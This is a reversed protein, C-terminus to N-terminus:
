TAQQIAKQKAGMAKEIRTIRLILPPHIMYTKIRGYLTMHEKQLKDWRQMAIIAKQMDDTSSHKIAFDDAVYERYHHFVVSAVQRIIVILAISPLLSTGLISVFITAAVGAVCKILGLSIVDENLIHGLEHVSFFHLGDKSEKSIPSPVNIYHRDEDTGGTGMVTIGKVEVVKFRHEWLKDITKDVGAPLTNLLEQVREEHEAGKSNEKLLVTKCVSEVIAKHVSEPAEAFKQHEKTKSSSVAAVTLFDYVPVALYLANMYSM